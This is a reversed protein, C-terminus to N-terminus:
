SRVWVTSVSGSTCTEDRSTIQNLDGGGALWSMPRPGAWELPLQFGLARGALALLALVAVPILLLPLM